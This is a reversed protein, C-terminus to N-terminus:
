VSSFVSNNLTRAVEDQMGPLVHSYTDLTLKVSSHGLRESVIKPHTDAALLLTAHTHRLDYLRLTTPLGAKQLLPKFHRQSLNSMDLTGNLENPFIFDTPETNFISQEKHKLLLSTLNEPLKIARESKPTKPKKLKLSGAVTEVARRVRITHNIADFDQWQWAAAEGPRVGTGIMIAFLVYHPTGRAVELFNNVQQENLAMMERKRYRPLDVFQAPNRGIMEWKVAQKLARNLIRHTNIVTKAGIGKGGQEKDRLLWHYTEQIDAVSLKALPYAGLPELLYRKVVSQYDYLTRRSVSPTAAKEFWYEFYEAVTLKVPTLVLEGMDKKRLLATLVKQAEKKTGRVTQNIYKRKGNADRGVFVRVMYRKGKEREEIRGAM